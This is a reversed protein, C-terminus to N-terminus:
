LVYLIRLSFSKITYLLSKGTFEGPEGGMMVSMVEASAAEAGAKTNPTALALRKDAATNGRGNQNKKTKKGGVMQRNARKAEAAAVAADEERKKREAQEMELAAMAADEREKKTRELTLREEKEEDDEVVMPPPAAPTPPPDFCSSSFEMNVLSEGLDVTRQCTYRFTNLLLHFSM